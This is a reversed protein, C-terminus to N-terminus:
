GATEAALAGAILAEKQTRTLRKIRIEERLAESRSGFLARYVISVPRRASTYRAGGRATGNHEALRREVDRAIGTYLSGDACALIYLTYEMLDTQGSERRQVLPDHRYVNPFNRRSTAHCWM